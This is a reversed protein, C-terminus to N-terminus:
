YLDTIISLYKALTSLSSILNINFSFKVRWPHANVSKMTDPVHYDIIYLFFIDKQKGDCSDLHSRILDPSAACM